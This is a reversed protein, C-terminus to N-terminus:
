SFLSNLSLPHASHYVTLMRIRNNSVIQYVIRYQKYILERVKPSEVEPVMRGMEPFNRLLDAKEFIKEVFTEALPKSYQSLYEAINDIDDVIQNSWDLTVM